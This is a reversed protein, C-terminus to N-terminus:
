FSKKRLLHIVPDLGTIVLTHQRTTSLRARATEPWDNAFAVYFAAKRPSVVARCFAAESRCEGWLLLVVSSVMIM